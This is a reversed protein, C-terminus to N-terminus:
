AQSPQTSTVEFLSLDYLINDLTVLTLESGRITSKCPLMNSICDCTGIDSPLIPISHTKTFFLRSASM